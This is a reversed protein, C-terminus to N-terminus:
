GGVAAGTMAAQGSSLLLQSGATSNVSILNPLGNAAQRSMVVSHHQFFFFVFM